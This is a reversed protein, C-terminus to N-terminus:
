LDQRIAAKCMANNDIKTAETFNETGITPMNVSNHEEFIQELLSKNPYETMFLFLCLQVSFYVSSLIPLPPSFWLPPDEFLPPPASFCLPPPSACLHIQSVSQSFYLTYNKYVYQEIEQQRHTNTIKCIM